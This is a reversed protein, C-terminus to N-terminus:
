SIRDNSTWGPNHPRCPIRCHTCGSGPFTSLHTKLLCPINEIVIRPYFSRPRWTPTFYPISVTQGFSYLQLGCAAVANMISANHIVKVNIGRAEARLLLDIIDQEIEKRRDLIQQKSEIKM